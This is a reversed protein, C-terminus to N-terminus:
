SEFGRLGQEMLPLPQDLKAALEAVGENVKALAECRFPAAHLAHTTDKMWGIAADVNVAAAFALLPQTKVPLSPMPAHLKALADLVPRPAEISLTGDFGRADLRRYGFVVRPLVAAIRGLDTECAAPVKGEFISDLQDFQGKGHGSLADFLRHTDAFGVTSPVYHHQALLQPLLPADRLSRAPLEAGVIAPLASGVLASPLVSAVLERGVIGFVISIGNADLVYIMARGVSRPQLDPDGAKVIRALLERVRVEDKVEVRMVPWISLGYVM